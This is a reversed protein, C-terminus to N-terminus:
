RHEVGGLRLAAGLGASQEEREGEGREEGADGLGDLEAEHEQGRGEEQDVRDEGARGHGGHAEDAHLQTESKGGAEEVIHQVEALRGARQQEDGHAEDVEAEVVAEEAEEDGAEIQLGGAALIFRPDGRRRRGPWPASRAAEDLGQAARGVENRDLVVRRRRTTASWARISSAASM